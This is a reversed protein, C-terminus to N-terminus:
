KVTIQKEFTTKGLLRDECYKYLFGPYVDKVKVTATVTVTQEEDAKAEDYGSVTYIVEYPIFHSDDFWIMEGKFEVDDAETKGDEYTANDPKHVILHLMDAATDNLVGDEGVNETYFDKTWTDEGDLVANSLDYYYVNANWLFDVDEPDQDNGAIAKVYEGSEMDTLCDTGEKM